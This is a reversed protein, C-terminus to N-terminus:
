LKNLLQRAQIEADHIRHELLVNYRELDADLPIIFPKGMYYAAKSFPKPLEFKDWAKEFVWKRSFASGIPLIEVNYKQAMHTMGPKVIHIPGIPGDIGFGISQGQKVRRIMGMLASVNRKRSSGRIVEYGLQKLSATLIDGDKSPSVLVAGKIKHYKILNFIPLFQKGHWFAFLYPKDQQYDEHYVMTMKLTKYLLYSVVYILFGLIKRYM